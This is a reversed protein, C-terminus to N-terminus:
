NSMHKPCNLRALSNGGGKHTGTKIHKKLLNDWIPPLNYRGGDKNLSPASVRIHIAETVGREFWRPDVLLIDTTDMSVSNLNALKM